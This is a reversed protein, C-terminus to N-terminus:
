HHANGLNGLLNYLEEDVINYLIISGFRVLGSFLYLSVLSIGIFVKSLLKLPPYLVQKRGASYQLVRCEMMDVHSQTTNASKGHSEM